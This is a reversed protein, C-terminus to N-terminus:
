MAKAACHKAIFEEHSPMARTCNAIVGRINGMFEGIKEEPYVDVLAHYSRPAMRQGHMVQV